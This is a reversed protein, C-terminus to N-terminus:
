LFNNECSIPNVSMEQSQNVLVSNTVIDNTSCLNNEQIEVFILNNGCNLVEANLITSALVKCVSKYGLKFGQPSNFSVYSIYNSSVSNFREIINALKRNFHYARLNPKYSYLYPISLFILNTHNCNRLVEIISKISPVNGSFLDNSGAAIIIFDKGGFSRSLTVVSDIVGSFNAGTKIIHELKFNKNSVRSIHSRLPNAMNRGQEDSLFLIKSTRFNEPSSPGPPVTKNSADEVFSGSHCQTEKDSKGRHLGEQMNFCELKCAKLENLYCDREKELTDISTLLNSQLKNLDQLKKVMDENREELDKIHKSADSNRSLLGVINKNLSLLEESQKKIKDELEREVELASDEFDQTRRKLRAIHSTKDRVEATLKQLEIQFREEM